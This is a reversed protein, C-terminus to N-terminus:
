IKIFLYKVKRLLNIFYNERYLYEFYNEIKRKTVLPYNISKLFKLESLAIKGKIVMGREYYIIPQNKYVTFIKFNKLNIKKKINREFEWPNLNYKLTKLFFDKKWFSVQLPLPYLDNHPIEGVSLSQDLKNLNIIKRKANNIKLYDIDNKIVFSYLLDIKRIDIKKKIIFDEFFFLVYKSDIQDLANKIRGSWNLKKSFFSINKPYKKRFQLSDSIVITKINLHFHFSLFEIFIDLIDQYDKSTSIVITYDRDYM